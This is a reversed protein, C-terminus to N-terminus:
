PCPPGSLLAGEAIQALTSDAIEDINGWQYVCGLFAAPSTIARKQGTQMVYVTTSSGKLLRGDAPSLRPCSGTLAAGVPITGLIGDSVARVADFGYGCGLFATLSIARRLGGEMVYVTTSSGKLLNGDALVNLVADGEPIGGLASDAMVNLNGWRYGAELTAPNAIARKLGGRMVYVTTSSGKLLRGDAPSM